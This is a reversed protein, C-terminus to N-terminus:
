EEYIFMTSHLSAAHLILSLSFMGWTCNPTQELIILRKEGWVGSVKVIGRCALLLRRVGMISQYLTWSFLSFLHPLFFVCASNYSHTDVAALKLKLANSPESGFHQQPVEVSGWSDWRWGSRVSDRREKVCVCAWVCLSVCACVCVGNGNRGEDVSRSSYTCAAKSM